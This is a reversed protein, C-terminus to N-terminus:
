KTLVKKRWEIIGWIALGLYVLFLASQAYSKIHFDWLCWFSDTVTWIYFGIIKQKVNLITATLSVGAVGWTLVAFDM